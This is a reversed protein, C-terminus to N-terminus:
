KDEDDHLVANVNEVVAVTADEVGANGGIHEAPEFLVTGVNGAREGRAVGYMVKDVELLIVINDIGDFSFLLNLVHRTFFLVKKNGLEIGSPSEEVLFISCRYIGRRGQPAARFSATSAASAASKRAM